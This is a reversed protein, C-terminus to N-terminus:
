RLEASFSFTVDRPKVWNSPPFYANTFLEDKQLDARFALLTERKSSFGTVTVKGAAINLSSLYMSQKLHSSISELVTTPSLREGYLGSIALLTANFEQINKLEETRASSQEKLSAVLVEQGRIEGKLYLRAAFLLLALCVLFVGIVTSLILVLRFNEEEHLRHKFAPPLLNIM